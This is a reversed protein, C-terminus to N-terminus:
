IKKNGRERGLGIGTTDAGCGAKSWFCQGKRNYSYTGRLTAQQDRSNGRVGEQPGIEEGMENLCRLRANMTVVEHAIRRKKNLDDM